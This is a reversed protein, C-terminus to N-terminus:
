AAKVQFLRGPQIAKHGIYLSPVMIYEGPNNEWWIKFQVTLGTVPDLVDFIRGSHDGDDPRFPVGSVAGISSSDFFYAEETFANTEFVRFGAIREPLEATTYVRSGDVSQPLATSYGIEKKLPTCYATGLIAVRDQGVKAASMEASKDVMADHGWNTPSFNGAVNAAPVEAAVTEAFHKVIDEALSNALPDAYTARLDYTARDLDDRTIKLGDYVEHQLAMEVDGLSGTALDYPATPDTKRKATRQAPAKAYVKQGLRLPVDSFKKPLSSYFGLQSALFLITEQSIIDVSVAGATTTTNAPM